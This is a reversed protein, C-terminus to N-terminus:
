GRLPRGMGPVRRERATIRELEVLFRRVRRRELYRRLVSM